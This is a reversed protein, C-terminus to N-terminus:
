INDLRSLKDGIDAEPLCATVCLGVPDAVGRLMSCDGFDRSRHCRVVRVLTFVSFVMSPTVVLVFIDKVISPEGGFLLSHTVLMGGRWGPCVSM